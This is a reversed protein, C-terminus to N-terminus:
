MLVYINNYLINNLFHKVKKGTMGELDLIEPILKSTYNEANIISKKIHETLKNPNNQM